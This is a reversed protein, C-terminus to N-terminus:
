ETEAAPLDKLYMYLIAPAASYMIIFYLSLPIGIITIVPLFMLFFVGFIGWVKMAHGKTARLSAKYAEVIDMNQDILFYPALILRAYLILGPIILLLLGFFVSFGVLLQLLLIKVLFPISDNLKEKLKVTNGRVSALYILILTVTLLIQGVFGVLDIVFQNEFLNALFNIAAILLYVYVISKINLMIANRSYSYIGFAGPWQGSVATAAENKEAKASPSNEDM